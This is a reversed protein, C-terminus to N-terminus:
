TMITGDEKEENFRRGTKMNDEQKQRATCDGQKNGDEKPGLKEHNEFDAQQTPEEGFKTHKQKESVHKAETKEHKIQPSESRRNYTKWKHVQQPIPHM